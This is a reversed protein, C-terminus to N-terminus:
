SGPKMPSSSFLPGSARARKEFMFSVLRPPKEGDEEHWWERMRELTMGNDQASGIFDSVHHVFAEIESTRQGREFIAKTGLYQRFPHLECVFFKGGDRLVRSSESFIFSLERIHELVLNCVILDVSQNECLWERTIDAVTFTVNDSRLKSKARDIMGESFDFALVHEGIDALLSTNKGTGCGLELIFGWRLDALTERTVKRDLDRTLNRDLDYTESWSTYADRISV